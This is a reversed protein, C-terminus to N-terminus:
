KKTAQYAIANDAQATKIVLLPRVDRLFAGATSSVIVWDWALKWNRNSAAHAHISGGWRERLWSLLVISTNSVQVRLQITARARDTKRRALISVCGEGDLIGAAYARDADTPKFM